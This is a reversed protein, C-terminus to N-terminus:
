CAKTKLYLCKEETLLHKELEVQTVPGSQTQTKKIIEVNIDYVLVKLFLNKFTIVLFWLWIGFVYLISGLSKNNPTTSRFNNDIKYKFCATVSMRASTWKVVSAKYTDYKLKM